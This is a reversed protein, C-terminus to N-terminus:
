LLEVNSENCISFVPVSVPFAARRSFGLLPRSHAAFVFAKAVKISISERRLDRASQEACCFWLKATELPVCVSARRLKARSQSASVATLCWCM